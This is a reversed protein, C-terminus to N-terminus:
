SNAKITFSAKSKKTSSPFYIKQGEISESEIFFSVMSFRNTPGIHSSFTNLDDVRKMEITITSDSDLKYILNIQKVSNANNVDVSITVTDKEYPDIPNIVLNTIEIQNSSSKSRYYVTSVVIGILIAIIQLYTIIKM